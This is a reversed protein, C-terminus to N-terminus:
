FSLTSDALTGYVHAETTSTEKVWTGYFVGDRIEWISPYGLGGLSDNIANYDVEVPTNLALSLCQAYTNNISKMMFGNGRDQYFVHVLGNYFITDVVCDGSSSGLNTDGVDTWTECDDTSSFLHIMETGDNQRAFILWNNGGCHVLSPEGYDNTNAWVNINTITFDDIGNVIIKRVNLRHNTGDHEFWPGFYKGPTTTSPLIKGYAEYRTETPAPLATYANWSSPDRLDEAETLTTLDVSTFYGIDVFTDVMAVVTYRSVQVFIQNGVLGASHGSYYTTGDDITEFVSTWLNFKANYLMGFGNGGDLYHSPGRKALYISYDTFFSNLNVGNGFGYYDPNGSLTIPIIIKLTPPYAVPISIQRAQADTLAVNGIALITQFGSFNQSTGTFDIRDLGSPMTASTDNVVLIGNVYMRVDNPAFTIVVRLESDSRFVDTSATDTQVVGGASVIVHAKNTNDFSLAVRNDLTGDSLTIRKETSSFVIFGKFYIAGSTGLYSGLGTKTTITEANRTVSASTTPIYSSSSASQELQVGWIHYGKTIDGSFDSTLGNGASTAIITTLSNSNNTIVNLEVKRWGNGADSINASTPTFPSAGISTLTGRVITTINFWRNVINAGQRLSVYIWDRGNPKIFFTLSHAQALSAKSISQEIRHQGSTVTEFMSDAISTGDPGVVANASITCNTKTWSANDIEESRLILNTSGTLETLIRPCTYGFRTNLRPVGTAVDAINGSSDRRTAVTARVTALDADGNTPKLAYIKNAKYGNATYIIGFRLYHIGLANLEARLCQESEFTGGDAAIRAKFPTIIDVGTLLEHFIASM